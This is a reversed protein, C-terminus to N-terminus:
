VKFGIGQVRFGSSSSQARLVLGDFLNRLRWDKFGFVQCGFGQVRLALGARLIGCLFVKLKWIVYIMFKSGWVELELVGLWFTTIIRFGFGHVELGSGYDGIGSGYVM